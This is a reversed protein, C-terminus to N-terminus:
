RWFELSAVVRAFFGPPAGGRDASRTVSTSAVPSTPMAGAESPNILPSRGPDGPYPADASGVRPAFSPTLVQILVQGPEVLQYARALEVLAGPQRLAISRATLQQGENSLVSLQSNASSLAARQHLLAGVPLWAALVIAATAIGGAIVLWGKLNVPSPAAEIAARKTAM